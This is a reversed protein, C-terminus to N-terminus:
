FLMDINYISDRKLANPKDKTAYERVHVAELFFLNPSFTLRHRTISCQIISSKLLAKENTGGILLFGTSCWQFMIIQTIGQECTHPLCLRKVTDVFHFTNQM